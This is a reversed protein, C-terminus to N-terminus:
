GGPVRRLAHLRTLTSELRSKPLFGESIAKDLARVVARVRAAQHCVLLLDHGALVAGVAARALTVHGTIGGMELDDSLLAGEFGLDTRLLGEAVRRSLTAPREPDIAPYLVHSTMVAAVGAGLAQRFPAIDSALAKLDANIVPRHHHPDKEVRGIGPFHKATAGIGRAQLTRIYTEGLLATRTPDTGYSRDKLVGTANVPALDLVPALNLGIGLHLLAEAALDAQKGASAAPDESLAVETNSPISPWAPPPLRQVGGGEQDVAILAPVTGNDDCATKLDDCLRKTQAPGGTVNRRFLIFSAVGYERILSLTEPDLEPGPLGAM